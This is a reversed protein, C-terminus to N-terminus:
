ACLVENVGDVFADLDVGESSTLCGTNHSIKTEKATSQEAFGSTTCGKSDPGALIRSKIRRFDSGRKFSRKFERLLKQSHTRGPLNLQM